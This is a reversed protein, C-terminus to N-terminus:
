ITLTAQLSVRRAIRRPLMNGLINMDSDPYTVRCSRNTQRSPSRAPICGLIDARHALDQQENLFLLFATATYRVQENDEELENLYPEKPEDKKLLEQVYQDNEPNQMLLLLAELGSARWPITPERVNACM